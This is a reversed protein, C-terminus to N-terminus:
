VQKSKHSSSSQCNEDLRTISVKEPPKSVDGAPSKIRGGSENDDSISVRICIRETEPITGGSRVKSRFILYHDEQRAVAEDEAEAESLERWAHTCSYATFICFPTM